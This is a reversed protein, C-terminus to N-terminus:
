PEWLAPCGTFPIGPICLYYHCGKCQATTSPLQLLHGSHVAEAQSTLVEPVGWLRRKKLEQLNQVREKPDLGYNQCAPHQPYTLWQTEECAPPIHDAGQSSCISPENKALFM